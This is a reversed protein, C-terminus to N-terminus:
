RSHHVARRSYTGRRRDGAGHRTACHRNSRASVAADASGDIRRSGPFRAQDDECPRARSSDPCQEPAHPWLSLWTTAPGRYATFAVEAGPPDSQIAAPVSVDLWLQRLHPDDPLVDLAERALLYAATYEGQNSLRQVAPAAITRAWRARSVVARLHWVGAAGGALVAALAISVAPRRITALLGPPSPLRRMRLVNELATMSIPSRRSGRTLRKPWAVTSLEQCRRRSRQFPRTLLDAPERTMVAELTGIASGAKFPAVGALMEYLVAGLAFIDAHWRGARRAAARAGYVRRHGSAVAARQPMRGRVPHGSRSPDGPRLRSDERPWGACCLHEGAEPRSARDRARARGRTRACIQLAVDLAADVAM